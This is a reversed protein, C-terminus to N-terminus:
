RAASPAPSTVAREIREAAREARNIQPQYCAMFSASAAVSGVVAAIAIMLGRGTWSAPVGHRLSAHDAAMRKLTGHMAQILEGNKVSQDAARESAKVALETRTVCTAVQAALVAPAELPSAAAPQSAANM